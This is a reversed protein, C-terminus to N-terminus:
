FKRSYFIYLGNGTQINHGSTRLSSNIYAFNYDQVSPVLALIEGTRGWQFIYAATTTLGLLVTAGAFGNRTWFLKQTKDYNDDISNLTTSDRYDKRSKLFFYQLVCTTILSVGTGILLYTGVPTGVKLSQMYDSEGAIRNRINNSLLEIHGDLFQIYGKAKESQVAGTKIKTYHANILITKPTDQSEIFTYDGYVIYDAALLKGIEGIKSTDTVGIMGLEQEKVIKEIKEREVIILRKSRSLESMLTKPIAKELYDYKSDGTNNNYELVAISIKVEELAESPGPMISASLMILLFLLLSIKAKV